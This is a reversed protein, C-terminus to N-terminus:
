RGERNNTSDNRSILLSLSDVYEIGHFHISTNFPLHNHVLFKFSM